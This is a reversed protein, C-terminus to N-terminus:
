GKVKMSFAMVFPKWFIGIHRSGLPRYGRPLGKTIIVVKANVLFFSITITVALALMVRIEQQRRIPRIRAAANSKTDICFWSAYASLFFTEPVHLTM